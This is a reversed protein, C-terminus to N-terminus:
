RGPILRLDIMGFVGYGPPPTGPYSGAEPMHYLSDTREAM